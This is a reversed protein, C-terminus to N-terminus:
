MLDKIPTEEDEEQITPTTSLTITPQTMPTTTIPTIPDTHRNRGAGYLFHQQNQRVHQNTFQGSRHGQRSTDRQRSNSRSTFRRRSTSRNNGQNRGFFRRSQPRGPQIRQHNFNQRRYPSRQQRTNWRQPRVNWGNSNSNYYTNYNRRQNDFSKSRNRFTNQRLNYPRSNSRGRSRYQPAFNRRRSPTRSRSRQRTQQHQIPTRSTSRQRYTSPSRFPIRRRNRNQNQYIRSEQETDMMGKEKQERLWQEKKQWIEKSRNEERQTDIKWMNLIIEEVRGQANQHIIERIEQDIMNYENSFRTARMISLSIDKQVTRMAHNFRERKENEPEGQIIKPRYKKLM